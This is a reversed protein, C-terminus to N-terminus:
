KSEPDEKEKNEKMYDQEITEKLIVLRQIVMPDSMQRAEMLDSEEKNLHYTDLMITIWKHLEKPTTYLADVDKIAHDDGPSFATALASFREEPDMINLLHKLLKIEPPAITKLSKNATRYIHYMIDKVENKMTTSEKAAAWARNILLILCSDLEKAKALSKIKECAADLSSSNLIDDFKSQAIDLTELQEMANDYARVASLCKAGLRSMADRDELSDHTDSLINLHRFFEGTFDKRRRAIVANFDLPNDRIETLLDAHKEIEDDIKKVKRALVILKQKMPQDEEADVRARCRAYFSEKYKGWEERFVLIKRWDQTNPKEHLFFEIMKDCFQTMTYGKAVEAEAQKEVNAIGTNNAVCSLTGFSRISNHQSRRRRSSSTSFPTHYSCKTSLPAAIERHFPCPYPLLPFPLTEYCFLGTTTM